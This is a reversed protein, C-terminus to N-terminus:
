KDFYCESGDFHCANELTRGRSLLRLMRDGDEFYPSAAPLMDNLASYPNCLSRNKLIGYFRIKGTM